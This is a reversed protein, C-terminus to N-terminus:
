KGSNTSSSSNTGSDESDSSSGYNQSDPNVSQKLQCSATSKMVNFLNNFWTHYGRSVTPHRICSMLVDKCIGIYRKFKERM